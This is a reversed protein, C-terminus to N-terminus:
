EFRKSPDPFRKPPGRLVRNLLRMTINRWQSLIAGSDLFDLFSTSHPKDLRSPYVARVRSVPTRKGTSSGFFLWPIERLLISIAIENRTHLSSICKCTHCPLFLLLVGRARRTYCILLGLSLRRSCLHCTNSQQTSCRVTRVPFSTGSHVLVFM